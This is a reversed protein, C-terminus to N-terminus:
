PSVVKQFLQRKPTKKMPHWVRILRNSELIVPSCPDENLFGVVVEDGVEPMFFAGAGSTSYFNALRAWIGEGYNNFMPVDVLVRFQGLPDDYMKKVTGNILGRVAPQNNTSTM